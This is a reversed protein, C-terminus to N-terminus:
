APKKVPPRPNATTEEERNADANRTSTSTLSQLNGDYNLGAPSLWRLNDPKDLQMHRLRYKEGIIIITITIERLVNHLRVYMFNYYFM